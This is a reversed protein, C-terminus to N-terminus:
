YRYWALLTDYQQPTAAPVFTITHGTLTYDQGAMQALGNRFLVLGAPPSPANALTFTANTGDIVGTLIEQDVFTVPQWASQAANWRMYQGDQPLATLPLNVAGPQWSTGTWIPVQGLAAGNRAMQQWLIQWSPDPPAASLEVAGIDLANLNTPVLWYRPGWSFKAIARGNVTQDPVSCAVKYYQGSPTASDTPVLVATFAGGTFKVQMPAGIVRWGTATSFPGVAQISCFGSLPDGAADTMTGTVSTTPAAAVACACLFLIATRM